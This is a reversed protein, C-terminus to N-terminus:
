TKKTNINNNSGYYRKIIETIGSTLNYTLRANMYSQTRSDNEFAVLNKIQIFTLIWTRILGTKNNSGSDVLTGADVMEQKLAKFENSANYFPISTNPREQTLTITVAM